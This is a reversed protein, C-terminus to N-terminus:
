DFFQEKKCFFSAIIDHVAWSPSLPSSSMSKWLLLRGKNSKWPAASIRRSSEASVYDAAKAHLLLRAQPWPAGAVRVEVSISWFWVKGSCNGELSHRQVRDRPRRVSALVFFILIAIFEVAFPWHDQQKNNMNTNEITTGTVSSYNPEQELNLRLWQVGCMVSFVM